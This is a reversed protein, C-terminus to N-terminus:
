HHAGNMRQLRSRFQTPNVRKARRFARNFSSAATFGCAQAVEGINLEAEALLRCARGLRLEAVFDQFTKGTHAKFYRSFAAPSLSAASAIEDRNLPEAIRRQIMECVRRLREGEQEPLDPMFGASCIPEVQRSDALLHLIHLLHLVRQFGALGPMERMLATVKRRAEGRVMLGTAARNLLRRIAEAEPQRFFEAGLSDERFYVIIAHVQPAHAAGEEEFQWVHPLNPGLLSVEGAELPAIDDGVIRHGAGEIFLGLQYEPHFHWSCPHNSGRFELVRFSEEASKTVQHYLVKMPTLYARLRAMDRWLVLPLADAGPPVFCGSPLPPM